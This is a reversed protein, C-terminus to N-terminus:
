LVQRVYIEFVYDVDKKNRYYKEIAVLQHLLRAGDVDEIADQEEDTAPNDDALHELHLQKAADEVLKYADTSKGDDDQKLLVYTTEEVVYASSVTRMAEEAEEPEVLMLICALESVFTLSDEGDHHSAHVHALLVDAREDHKLVVQRKALEHSGTFLNISLYCLSEDLVDEELVARQVVAGHNDRFAPNSSSRADQGDAVVEVNGLLEAKSMTGCLTDAFLGIRQGDHHAFLRAVDGRGIRIHKARM